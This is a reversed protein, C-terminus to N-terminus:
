PLEALFDKNGLGINPPLFSLHVPIVRQRFYISLLRCDMHKAQAAHGTCPRKMASVQMGVLLRKQLAMLQAKVIKAADETHETVVIQFTRHLLNQAPPLPFLRHAKDRKSRMPSECRFKTGGSLPVFLSTHFFFATIKAPVM